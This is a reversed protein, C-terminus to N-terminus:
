RHGQASGGNLTETIILESREIDDETGFVGDAGISTLHLKFGNKDPILTIEIKQGWADFLAGDRFPADPFMKYTVLEPNYDESFSDTELNRSVAVLVFGFTDNTEAVKAWHNFINFVYISAGLLMSLVCFLILLFVKM